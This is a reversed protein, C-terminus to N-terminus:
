TYLWYGVIMWGDGDSEAHAKAKIYAQNVRVRVRVSDLIKPDRDTVTVDPIKAM